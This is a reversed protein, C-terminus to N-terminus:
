RYLRAEAWSAELKCQSPDVLDHVNLKLLKTGRVDVDVYAPPGGPTLAASQYVLQNDAWVDFQASVPGNCPGTHNLGAFAEFVRFRGDLRYLKETPNGAVPFNLGADFPIRGLSIHERVPAAEDGRLGEGAPALNELRAFPPPCLQLTGYVVAACAAVILVLRLGRVPENPPEQKPSAAIKKDRFWVLIPVGFLLLLLATKWWPPQYRFAIEHRGAPCEVAVYGPSVMIPRVAQGDLTARWFPHYTMKLMVVAPRNLDVTATWREGRTESTVSGPDGVEAPSDFRIPGDFVARKAEHEGAATREKLRFHLPDTMRVVTAFPGDPIDAFAMRMFKGQRPLDSDLWIAVMNWYTHKDARLLIPTDVVRFLHNGAPTAYIAYSDDAFVPTLGWYRDDRWSLIHSVGFLDLQDWRFPDLWYTFDGPLAWGFPLHGLLPVGYVGAVFYMPAGAIRFHDGWGNRAGAWVRTVSERGLAAFFAPTRPAEAKYDRHLDRVLDRNMSLVRWPGAMIGIFVVAAAAVAAGRWAAKNARGVRESLWAVGVGALAAGFFHIGLIFRIFQMDGAMPLADFLRGWTTRGAFMLLSFLFGVALAVEIRGRRLSVGFGLLVLPTLLPLRGADFLQGKFLNILTWAFGFSDFRSLPEYHSVAAHYPANRMVPILFFAAAAGALAVLAVLRKAAPLRPGALGLAWWLALTPLLLYPLFLHAFFLGAFAVLPWFARNTRGTLWEWVLALTWPFVAMGFLQTFLGVGYPLYTGFEHGCALQTGATLSLVAGALAANESLGFRKAAFYYSWPYSLLLLVVLLQYLVAVPVLKFALLYLAALTLHGGMQYHGFLPFGCAWTTSFFDLPNKFAAARDAMQQAMVQHLNGDNVDYFRLTAEPLLQILFFLSLALLFLYSRKM